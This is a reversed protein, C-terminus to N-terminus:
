CAERNRLTSEVPGGSPHVDTIESIGEGVTKMILTVWFASTHHVTRMKMIGEALGEYLLILNEGNKDLNKNVKNAHCIFIDM